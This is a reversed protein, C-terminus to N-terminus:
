DRRLWAPPAPLYMWATIEMVNYDEEGDIIWRGDEGDEYDIYCGTLILGGKDVVIVRQGIEPLREKCDIWKEMNEGRTPELIKLRKEKKEPTGMTKERQMAAFTMRNEGTTRKPAIGGTLNVM